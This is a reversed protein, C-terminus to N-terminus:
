ADDGHRQAGGEPDEDGKEMLSKPAEPDVDSDKFEKRVEKVLEQVRKDGDDIAADLDEGPYRSGWLRSVAELESQSAKIATMPVEQLVPQGTPSYGSASRVFRVARGGSWEWLNGFEDPILRAM